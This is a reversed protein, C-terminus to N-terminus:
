HGHDTIIGVKKAGDDNIEQIVKMLCDTTLNLEARAITRRSPCGKGLRDPDCRWGIEHFLAEFAGAIVM